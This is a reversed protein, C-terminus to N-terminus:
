YVALAHRVEGLEAVPLSGASEVCSLDSSIIEIDPVASLVVCSWAARCESVCCDAAREHYWDVLVM